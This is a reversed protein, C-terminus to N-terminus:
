AVKFDLIAMNLMRKYFAFTLTTSGTLLYYRLSLYRARCENTNWQRYVALLKVEDVEM